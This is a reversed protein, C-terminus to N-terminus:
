SAQKARWRHATAASASRWIGRARKVSRGLAIKGGHNNNQRAAGAKAAASAVIAAQTAAMNIQYQKRPSAASLAV